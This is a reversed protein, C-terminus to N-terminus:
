KQMMKIGEVTKNRLDKKFRGMEEIKEIEM